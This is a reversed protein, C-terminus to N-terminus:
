RGSSHRQWESWSRKPLRAVHARMMALAAPGRAKQQGGAIFERWNPMKKMRSLVATQFALVRDAMAEREIRDRAGQM